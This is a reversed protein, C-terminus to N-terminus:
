RASSSASRDRDLGLAPQLVQGLEDAHGVVEVRDRLEELRHRQHGVGVLQGVAVIGGVGTDHQHGQVGGLPELEGDHEEGPQLLAHEGVLPREGFGGLELLLAAEAVDADGAGLLAQEEGM